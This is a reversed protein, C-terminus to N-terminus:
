HALSLQSQLLFLTVFYVTFFPFKLSRRNKPPLINVLRPAESPIRIVISKFVASVVSSVLSVKRQMVTFLVSATRRVSLKISDLSLLIRKSRYDCLSVVPLSCHFLLSDCHFSIRFFNVDPASLDVRHKAFHVALYSTWSFPELLTFSFMLHSFTFFLNFM